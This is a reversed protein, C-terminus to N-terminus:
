DQESHATSETTGATEPQRMANELVSFAREGFDLTTKTYAALCESIETRVGDSLKVRDMQTDELVLMRRMGELATKSVPQGQQPCAACTAGGRPSFRVIADNRIDRGCQACTTVAPRYGTVNLFRVLFCCFLDKPNSVGYSLFSLAHYLLSFLAENPENEPAADHCLRLMVSGISFREYDERIPYFTEKVECANITAREKGTYIEFQGFVFPQCANVLPSQPKRCGRAKADLRGRDITFISLIRDSERYNAYRTVIGDVCIVPM